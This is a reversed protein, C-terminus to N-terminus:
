RVGVIMQCHAARRGYHLSLSSYDAAQQPESQWARSDDYGPSVGTSPWSVLLLVLQASNAASQHLLGAENALAPLRGMSATTRAKNPQSFFARRKKPM